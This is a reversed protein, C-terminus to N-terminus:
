SHNNRFFQRRVQIFLLALLGFMVSISAPEPIGTVHQFAVTADGAGDSLRLADFRFVRSGSGGVYYATVGLSDISNPNVLGTASFTPTATFGALSSTDTLDPSLWLDFEGDVGTVMRGLVLYDVGNELGTAVSDTAGNLTVNLTGGPVLQINWDTPNNSGAVTNAATANFLLGGAGVSGGQRFVYSFWVEGSASTALDRYIGRYNVTSSYLSGSGATQTLPYNDYSMNLTSNFLLGSAGQWSGSWGQGGNAGILSSQNALDPYHFDETVPVVAASLTFTACLSLTVFKQLIHKM